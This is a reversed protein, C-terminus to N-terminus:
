PTVYSLSLCFRVSRYVWTHGKLLICGYRISELCKIDQLRVAYACQCFYCHRIHMRAYVLMHMSKHCCGCLAHFASMYGEFQLHLLKSTQIWFIRLNEWTWLEGHGGVNIPFFSPNYRKCVCVKLKGDCLCHHSCWFFASSM